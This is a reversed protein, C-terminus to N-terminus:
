QAYARINGYVFSSIGSDYLKVPALFVIVGFANVIGSLTLFLLNFPSFERVVKKVHNM